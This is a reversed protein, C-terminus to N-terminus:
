RFDKLIKKLDGKFYKGRKVEQSAKMIEDVLQDEKYQLIARRVFDAKNAVKGLKVQENIFDNLSDNLPVTITTM